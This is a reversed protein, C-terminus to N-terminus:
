SRRELRIREINRPREGKIKWGHEGEIREMGGNPPGEREGKEWPGEVGHHNSGDTACPVM